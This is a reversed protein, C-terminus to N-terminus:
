KIQSSTISQIRPTRPIDVIWDEHFSSEEWKIMQHEIKKNQADTIVVVRSKSDHNPFHILSLYIKNTHHFCIRTHIFINTM